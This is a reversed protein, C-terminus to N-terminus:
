LYRAAAHKSSRVHQSAGAKNEPLLLAVEQLMASWECSCARSAADSGVGVSFFVVEDSRGAKSGKDEEGARGRGRLRV